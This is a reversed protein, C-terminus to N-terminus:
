HNTNWTWQQKTFMGVHLFTSNANSSQNYFAQIQTVAINQLNISGSGGRVESSIVHFSIVDSRLEPETHISWDYKATETGQATAHCWNQRWQKTFGVQMFESRCILGYIDGSTDGSGWIRAWRQIKSSTIEIWRFKGFRRLDHAKFRGRRQSVLAINLLCTPSWWHIELDQTDAFLKFAVMIFKDLRLHLVQIRRSTESTAESVVLSFDPDILELFRSRWGNQPHQGWYIESSIGNVKTGEPKIRMFLCDFEFM